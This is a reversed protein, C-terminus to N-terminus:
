TLLNASRRTGLPLAVTKKQKPISSTGKVQSRGRGTQTHCVVVIDLGQELRRRMAGNKKLPVAHLLQKTRMIHGQQIALLLAKSELATKVGDRVLREGLSVVFSPVAEVYFPVAVVIAYYRLWVISAAM